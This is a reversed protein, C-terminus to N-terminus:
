LGGAADENGVRHLFLRYLAFDDSDARAGAVLIAFEQRHLDLATVAHQEIFPRASCDLKLALLQHDHGLTFDHTHEIVRDGRLFGSLWLIGLMAALSTLNLPSARSRMSRPM